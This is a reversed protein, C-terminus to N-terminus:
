KEGLIQERMIKDIYCYIYPVKNPIEKYLVYLVHEKSNM